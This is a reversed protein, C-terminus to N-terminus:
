RQHVATSHYRSGLDEIRPLNLRETNKGVDVRAKRMYVFGMGVQTKLSIILHREVIQEDGIIVFVDIAYGIRMSYRM